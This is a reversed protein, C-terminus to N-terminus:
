LLGMQKLLMLKQMEEQSIGSMGSGGISFPNAFNQGYQEFAKGFKTKPALAQQLGSTYSASGFLANSQADNLGSRFSRFDKNSMESFDITDLTEGGLTYGEFAKNGAIETLDMGGVVGKQTKASGAVTM